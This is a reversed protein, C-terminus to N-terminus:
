PAMFEDNFIQDYPDSWNGNSDFDIWANLFGETGSVTITICNQQGINIQAPGGFDIGDEDDPGGFNDDDMADISPQGDPEPDIITGIIPGPTM